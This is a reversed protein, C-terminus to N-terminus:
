HCCYISCYKTTTRYMKSVYGFSRVTSNKSTIYLCENSTSWLTQVIKQQISMATPLRSSVLSISLAPPVLRVCSFCIPLLYVNCRLIDSPSLLNRTKVIPLTLNKRIENLLTQNEENTQVTECKKTLQCNNYM